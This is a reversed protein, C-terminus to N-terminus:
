IHIKDSVHNAFVKKRDRVQRKIRKLSDKTSFFKNYIIFDLKSTKRKHIMSQTDHRLFGGSLEVNQLNKRINEEPRKIGICKINFDIVM